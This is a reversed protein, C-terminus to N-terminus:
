REICAMKALAEDLGSLNFHHGQPIDPETSAAIVISRRGAVLETMQLAHEDPAIAADTLHDVRSWVGLATSDLDAATATMEPDGSLGLTATFSVLLEGEHCQWTLVSSTGSSFVSAVRRDDQDLESVPSLWAGVDLSDAALGRDVTPTREDIVLTITPVDVEAEYSGFRANPAVVYTHFRLSGEFDFVHGPIRLRTTAGQPAVGLFTRRLCSDSLVRLPQSTRNELELWLPRPAGDPFPRGGMCAPLTAAGISPPLGPRPSSCGTAVVAVTFGAFRLLARMGSNLSPAPGSCPRRMATDMRDPHAEPKDNNRTPAYPYAAM